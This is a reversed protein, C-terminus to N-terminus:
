QEKHQVYGTVTVPQKELNQYPDTGKRGSVSYFLALVALVAFFLACLPRKRVLM